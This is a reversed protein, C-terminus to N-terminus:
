YPLINKSRMFDFIPRLQPSLPQFLQCHKIVIKWKLPYYNMRNLCEKLYIKAKTKNGHSFNYFFLHFYFQSYAVEFYNNYKYFLEEDMMKFKKLTQLFSNEKNVNNNTVSSGHHRYVSMNEKLYKIKGYQALLIYLPVDASQSVIFSPPFENVLGNRFVVSATKMFSRRKITDEITFIDQEHKKNNIKKNNRYDDEFVEKSDHFCLVFDPNAELFDIQKQLKLPDTWYDDGDLLAIYKGKAHKINNMFNAMGSPKGEIYIVSTRDNLLVRIKDPFKQQYSIVIDRTNDSSDDEGILLEVPFTTQQMLVGEIAQAIYKEHNYTILSVTVM